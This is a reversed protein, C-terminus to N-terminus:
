FESDWLDIAENEKSRMIASEEDSKDKYGILHLVGHAMVRLLETQFPVELRDANDKVRDISIFIDSELIPGQIYPFTIIDTYYDHNLYQKNIGLLFDDSCFMYSLQKIESGERSAVAQLWLQCKHQDDLEFSIDESQFTISYNSGSM